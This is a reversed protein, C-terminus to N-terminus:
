PSFVVLPLPIPHKKWAGLVADASGSALDLDTLPQSTQQVRIGALRMLTNVMLLTGCRRFVQVATPDVTWTRRHRAQLFQIKGLAGGDAMENM